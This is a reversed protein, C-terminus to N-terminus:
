PPQWLGGPRWEVQVAGGVGVGLLWLGGRPYRTSKGVEPRKPEQEPWRLTEGSIDQFSVGEVAEWRQEPTVESPGLSWGTVIAVAGDLDWWKIGRGVM